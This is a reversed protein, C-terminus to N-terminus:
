EWVQEYQGVALFYSQDDVIPKPIVGGDFDRLHGLHIPLQGDAPDESRSTAVLRRNVLRLITADGRSEADTKWARVAESIETQKDPLVDNHPVNVWVHGHETIYLRGPNPRYAAYREVLDSHDFASVFRYDRWNWVLEGASSVSWREGHNFPFSTWVKVGSTPPKPNTDVSGFDIEGRCKGLYVPVWGESIPAQDVNDYASAKVKTLVEGTATIRFSGLGQSKGILVMAQRLKNPAKAFISLDRHEWKLVAHDDFSDDMVISYRSGRYASPWPQKPEVSVSKNGDIPVETPEETFEFNM